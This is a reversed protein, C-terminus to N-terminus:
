VLGTPLNLPVLDQLLQDHRVCDFARSLDISVAVSRRNLHLLKWTAASNGRFNCDGVLEHWRQRKGDHITRTILGNLEVIRPDNADHARIDCTERELRSAEPPYNPCLLPHHSSKSSGYDTSSPSAGGHPCLYSTTPNVVTLPLPGIDLSIGLVETPDAGLLPLQHHAISKDVLFALGGGKNRGRDRRVITYDACFPVHTSKSWKTEQIAAVAISHLRM